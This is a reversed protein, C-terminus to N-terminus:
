LSLACCHSFGRIGYVYLERDEEDVIELDILKSVVRESM